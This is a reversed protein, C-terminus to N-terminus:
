ILYILLVNRQIDNNYSIHLIPGKTASNVIVSSLDSKQSGIDWISMKKKLTNNNQKNNNNKMVEVSIQGRLSKVREIKM